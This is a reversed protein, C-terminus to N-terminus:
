CVVVVVADYPYLRSHLKIRREFVCCLIFIATFVRGKFTKFAIAKKKLDFEILVFLCINVMVMKVKFGYNKKRIPSSNM